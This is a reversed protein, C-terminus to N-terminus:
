SLQTCKTNRLRNVLRVMAAAAAPLRIRSNYLRELNTLQTVPLNAPKHKTDNNQIASFHQLKSPAALIEVSLVSSALEGDSDDSDFM